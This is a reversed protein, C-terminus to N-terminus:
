TYMILWLWFFVIQEILYKFFHFFILVFIWRALLFSFQKSVMGVRFWASFTLASCSHCSNCFFVGFRKRRSVRARACVCSIMYVVVSLSLYVHHFALPSWWRGDAPLLRKKKGEWKWKIPHLFAIKNTPPYHIHWNISLRLILKQKLNIVLIFLSYLPRSWFM